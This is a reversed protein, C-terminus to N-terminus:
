VPRRAQQRLLVIYVALLTPIFLFWQVAYGLHPGESPRRPEVPSPVDGPPPDQEQLLLYLGNSIFAHESGSAIRAVDIRDVIEEHKTVPALAARGESSLLIGTVTVDDDPPAADRLPPDEMGPPVWGRDVLVAEDKGVLLPTLVHSGDIGNPGARGILVVEESTDYTGTVRVRRHEADGDALVDDLSRVPESERDRILENKTRREDLRNLQWVGAVAFLPVAIAVLVHLVVWRPRRAFRYSM